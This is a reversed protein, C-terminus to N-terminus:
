EGKLRFKKFYLYTGELRQRNKHGESHKEFGKLGTNCLFCLLGRVYQTKENTGMKKFGKVHEHDVCLRGSPPLTKCIWCVGKQDKLMKEWDKLTIGYTKWLRQDKQKDKASLNKTVNM